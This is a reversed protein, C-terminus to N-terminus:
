IAQKIDQSKQRATTLPTYTFHFNNPVSPILPSEDLNGNLSLVRPIIPLDIASVKTLLFSIKIIRSVLSDPFLICFSNALPIKLAPTVGTKPPM